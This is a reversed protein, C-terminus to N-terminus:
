LLGYLALSTELVDHAKYAAISDEGKEIVIAVVVQPDDAPAMGVFWMNTTGDGNEATGTKGAVEVGSLAAPYGTGNSVVGKMVERVEQAVQKSTAQKFPLPTTSFSREGNANYIGDVLYPNMIVGDNAIACGALAMELVTAQPGAPSEHEGVPEGCAAWATEWTTMESPDPM